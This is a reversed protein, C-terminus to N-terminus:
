PIGILGFSSSSHAIPAILFMSSARAFVIYIYIYIYNQFPLASPQVAFLYFPVFENILESPVRLGMRDTSRWAQPVM